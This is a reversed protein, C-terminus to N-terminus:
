SDVGVRGKISVARYGVFEITENMWGMGGNSMGGRCNNVKEGWLVDM